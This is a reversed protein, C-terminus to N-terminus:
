NWCHRATLPWRRWWASREARASASRGCRSAWTTRRRRGSWLCASARGNRCHGATRPRRRWCASRQERARRYIWLALGLNNQARAWDLPVRERTRAELVTGYVRIADVLAANDGFESGLARLASVGSREPLEARLEEDFAVLAAASQLKEAADRYLLELRDIKAEDSLLEAEERAREERRRRMARRLESLLLRARVLDGQELSGLAQARVEM